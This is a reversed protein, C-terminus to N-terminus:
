KHNNINNNNDNNDVLENYSNIRTNTPGDVIEYNIDLIVNSVDRTIERVINNLINNALTTTINQSVDNVITNGQLNTNSLINHRCVPCLSSIEFWQLIQRKKFIHKCHNLQLIQDDDKFKTQSIPCIDQTTTEKIERWTADRVNDYIQLTTPRTETDRNTDFINYLFGPRRSNQHRINRNTTFLRSPTNFSLGRTPSRGFHFPSQPPHNFGRIPSIRSPNNIPRTFTNNHRTSANNSRDINLSIFRNILRFSLDQEKQCYELLNNPINGSFHLQNNLLIDKSSRDRFWNNLISTYSDDM